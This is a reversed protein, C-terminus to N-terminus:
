ANAARPRSPAYARMFARASARARREIDAADPAGLNMLGRLQWPGLVMGGFFEAALEPDDVEMRGAAHEVRLFEALRRRSSRPGSEYIIRALEPHEAASLITLRMTQSHEESAVTELLSRAFGYLATEPDEAAGPLTLPAVVTSSRREALVRVIEERGGFHNYVTQKSVGARRAIEEMTAGLGREAMVESAADLIAESKRVDIQGLARPM